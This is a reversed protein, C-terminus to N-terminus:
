VSRVRSSGLVTAFPREVYVLSNEPPVSVKQPEKIRVYERNSCCIFFNLVLELLTVVTIIPSRAIRPKLWVQSRM